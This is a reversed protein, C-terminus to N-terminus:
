AKPPQNNSRRNGLLQGSFLMSGRHGFSELLWPLLVERMVFRVESREVNLKVAADESKMRSICTAEIIAWQMGDVQQRLPSLLHTRVKSRAESLRVKITSMTAGCQEAVDELEMEEFLWLDLFRKQTDSIPAAHCEDYFHLFRATEEFLQEESAAIMQEEALGLQTSAGPSSLAPDFVRGDDDVPLPREHKSRVNLKRIRDLLRNTTVSMLWAWLKSDDAFDAVEFREQLHRFVVSAAVSEAVIEPRTTKSQVIKSLREYLECQAADRSEKDDSILAALLSTSNVEPM